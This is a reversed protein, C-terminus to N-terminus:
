NYINIFDSLDKKANEMKKSFILIYIRQDSPVYKMEILLNMKDIRLGHFGAKEDLNKSFITRNPSNLALRVMPILRDWIKLKIDIKKFAKDKGKFIETNGLPSSIENKLVKSIPYLLLISRPWYNFETEWYHIDWYLRKAMLDKSIHFQNKGCSDLFADLSPTLPLIRGLFKSPVLVHRAIEYVFAEEKSYIATRNGEFYDGVRDRTFFPKIPLNDIDYFFTHGIEHAILTRKQTENKLRNVKLLFGEEHAELKAHDIQDTEIITIKRDFHLFKSGTSEIFPPKTEEFKEMRQWLDNFLRMKIINLMRKKDETSIANQIENPSLFKKALAQWLNKNNM